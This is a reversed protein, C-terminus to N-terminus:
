RFIKFTLDELLLHDLFAIEHGDEVCYGLLIYDVEVRETSLCVVDLCIKILVEMLLKVMDSIHEFLHCFVVFTHIVFRTFIFLKGRINILFEAQGIIAVQIAHGILALQSQIQKNSIRSGHLNLASVAIATFLSPDFSILSRQTQLKVIQHRVMVVSHSDVLLDVLPRARLQQSLQSLDEAVSIFGKIYSQFSGHPDVFLFM